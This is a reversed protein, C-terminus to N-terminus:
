PNFPAASSERARKEAELVAAFRSRERDIELQAQAKLRQIEMANRARAFQQQMQAEAKRQEIQANMAAEQQRLQLEARRAELQAQLKLMEPDPKPGQAELQKQMEKLRAVFSAPLPSYEVALMMMQPPLVGKLVPFLQSLVAWTAEKQNPATPAQDVVVDYDAVDALNWRPHQLEPPGGFPVNQEGADTTIRVMRGDSVYRQMMYLWCRGQMKRFRRLSDFLPALLTV